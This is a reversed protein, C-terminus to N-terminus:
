RSRLSAFHLSGRIELEAGSSLEGAWGWEGAGVRCIVRMGGDPLEPAGIRRSGRNAGREGDDQLKGDCEQGGDVGLRGLCGDMYGRPDHRAEQELMDIGNNRRFGVRMVRGSCDHQVGDDAFLALHDLKVTM